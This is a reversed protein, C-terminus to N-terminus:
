IEFESALCFTKSLIKSVVQFQIKVIANHCVQKLCKMFQIDCKCWMVKYGVTNALGWRIYGDSIELPCEDHIVCCKNIASAEDNYKKSKMSKDYEGCLFM